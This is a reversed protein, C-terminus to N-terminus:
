LIIWLGLVLLILGMGLELNRANNELKTLLPTGSIVLAVLIYWGGDICMAISAVLLREGLSFGPQIFQSFIAILFALIKPNLFSILFGETFGRQESKKFEIEDNSGRFMVLALIILFIGGIIELINAAGSVSSKLEAIGTIAIFAYFGFGIGHGLGCAIGRKKGGEITNRILVVLSPGPSVAGIILVLVIPTLASM